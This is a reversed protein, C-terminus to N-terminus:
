CSSLSIIHHVLTNIEMLMLILRMVLLICVYLLIENCYLMDVLGNRCCGASGFFFDRGSLFFLGSSYVDSALFVFMTMMLAYFLGASSFDFPLGVVM